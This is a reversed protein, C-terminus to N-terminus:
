LWFKLKFISSFFIHKKYIKKIDIDASIRPDASFDWAQFMCGRRHFYITESCKGLKPISNNDCYFLRLRDHSYVLHEICLERCLVDSSQSVRDSITAIYRLCDTDSPFQNVHKVMWRVVKVHGQQRYSYYWCWNMFLVVYDCQPFGNYVCTYM